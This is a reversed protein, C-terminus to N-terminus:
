RTSVAEILLYTSITTTILGVIRDFSLSAGEPKKPIVIKSDSKVEPYFSLFGLTKVRKVEGNSYEIYARRKDSKRKFGGATEVYNM